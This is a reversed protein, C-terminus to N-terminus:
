GDLFSAFIDDEIRIGDLQLHLRDLMFVTAYPHHFCEPLIEDPNMGKFRRFTISDPLARDLFVVCGRM